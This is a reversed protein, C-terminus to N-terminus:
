GGWGDGADGVSMDEDRGEGQQAVAAGAAPAGGGRQGAGSHEVLPAGAAEELEGKVSEMM